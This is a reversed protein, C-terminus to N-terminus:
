LKHDNIISIKAVNRSMLNGVALETSTKMEIKNPKETRGIETETRTEKHNNINRETSIKDGEALRRDGEYEKRPPRPVMTLLFALSRLHTPGGGSERSHLVRVGPAPAHQGGGGPTRGGRGGPPLGGGKGRPPWFIIVEM